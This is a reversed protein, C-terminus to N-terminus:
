VWRSNARGGGRRVRAASVRGAQRHRAPQGDHTPGTLSTPRWALGIAAGSRSRRVPQSGALGSQSRTFWDPPQVRPPNRPWRRPPAAGAGPSGVLLAGGRGSQPVTFSHTAQGSPPTPPPAASGGPGISDGTTMSLTTVVRSAAPSTFKAAMPTTHPSSVMVMRGNVLVRVYRFRVVDPSATTLTVSLTRTKALLAR